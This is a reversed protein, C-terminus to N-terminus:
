TIRDTRIELHQPSSLIPSGQRDAESAACWPRWASSVPGIDEERGRSTTGQLVIRAYMYIYIFGAALLKLLDAPPTFPGAARIMM